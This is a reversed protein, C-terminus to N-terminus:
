QSEPHPRPQDKGILKLAEPTCTYTEFVVRYWAGSYGACDRIPVSNPCDPNTRPSTQHMLALLVNGGAAGVANRQRRYPDAQGALDQESFRDEGLSGTKQCGDPLARAAPPGDLQARFVAVQAGQPTLTVCSGSVLALVVVAPWRM